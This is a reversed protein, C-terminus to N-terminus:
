LQTNYVIDNKIVIKNFNTLITSTYWMVVYLKFGQDTYKISLYVSSPDGLYIYIGM